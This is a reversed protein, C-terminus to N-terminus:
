GKNRQSDACKGYYRCVRILNVILKGKIKTLLTPQPVCKFVKACKEAHTMGSSVKANFTDLLLPSYDYSVLGAWNDSLHLGNDEVSYM